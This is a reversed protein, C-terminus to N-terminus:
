SKQTDEAKRSTSHALASRIVHGISLGQALISFVVVAYTLALVINREPGAPLSLALAVSIGGRLGGWVLVRASGAPLKFLTPLWAVPLGVTLSRALLTMGIAVAGGLLLPGSFSILLVEMGILVFLVANLMEDILEWFMDVHHRTSDSMALAGGGNGTMLGAVVMALPGSVHLHSALAYGGMVAALTLLVEVQYNDISKLMYFLLAGLVLGFAIGGGAERLLLEFAASASPASGSALMGALLAFIVVGVGDNFLSEGAIVLELNKPAGASKLIGMVAIPDTPSILAGFLLGHMLGLKIGLWPLVLWLSLGVATSLATGALALTAVQWRYKKLASLDVHLAGAFLLFSLMGQMLVDSFDISRLFSEEYRRLGYDLGIVDLAVISLSIALAIVMVGIATPLKVFRHNLYALLATVARCIAAIDLM